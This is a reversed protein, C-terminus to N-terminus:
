MINCSTTSCMSDAGYLSKKTPGVCETTKSPNYQIRPTSDGESLNITSEYERWAEIIEGGYLEWNKAESTFESLDIGNPYNIIPYNIIIYDLFNNIKVRKPRAGGKIKKYKNKKM